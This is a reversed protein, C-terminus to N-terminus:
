LQSVIYFSSLISKFLASNAILDTVCCSVFIKLWLYLSQVRYLFSLCLKLTLAKIAFLIKWLAIKLNCKKFHNLANM